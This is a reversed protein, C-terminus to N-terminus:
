FLMSAAVDLNGGAAQLYQIAMERTAGLSELTAIHEESFGGNNRAPAQPQQPQSPQPTNRPNSGLAHGTGPFHIQPPASSSPGAGPSSSGGTQSAGEEVLEGTEHLASKPLEHEPLFPVERGRIRLVNKELDICAQHAKLMDLGFLLDVDRGEMITISCPLFVDAVKLQAMHVRGLIKATGVGKAIGSFRTDILRAIGCAEACSPNMITQQAGSDVFAKVPYGNIEVPIYLMIVRGFSEPSHEMANQLNEMVSQMRIAEEIKKQAELNYPDREIEAIQRRELGAEALLQNFRQPDNNTVADALEPNTNRLEQMLQPNGLFQLRMMEPDLETTRGAVTVKKRLLLMAEDGNIGFSALTAKPDSLERGEYSISQEEVRYESDAELLAMINELEMQPDVEIVYTQGLDTVFTLRM